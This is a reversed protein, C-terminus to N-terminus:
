GPQRIDWIRLCAARRRRRCAALSAMLTGLLLTSPEPIAAPGTVTFNTFDFVGASEEATSNRFGVFSFRHYAPDAGLDVGDDNVTRTALLTGGGPKDFVSTTYTTLANSVRTIEQVFTYENNLAYVIPDGGSSKTYAGSSGLLSSNGLDTQKGSDFLSRTHTPDGMFQWRCATAEPTPGHIALAAATTM